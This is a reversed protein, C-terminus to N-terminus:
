AAIPELLAELLTLEHPRVVHDADAFEELHVQAGVAEFLQATARLDAVPLWPDQMGGSIVLPLGELDIEPVARNRLDPLAGTFIAAGSPRGHGGFLFEAVVCGGQSFGALVIAEEGFGKRSALDFAQKVQGVALELQAANDAYPADYRGAYWRRPAINPGLILFQRALHSGIAWVPLEDPERERGHVLILVGKAESWGAGFQEMGYASSPSQGDAVPSAQASRQVM